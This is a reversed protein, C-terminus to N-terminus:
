PALKGMESAWLAARFNPVVGPIGALKKTAHNVDVGVRFIYVIFFNGNKEM